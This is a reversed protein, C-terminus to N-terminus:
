SKKRQVLGNRFSFTDGYDVHFSSGFACLCKAYRSIRFFALGPIASNNKVHQLEIGQFLLLLIILFTFLTIAEPGPPKQHMLDCNAMSSHMKSLRTQLSSRHHSALVSRACSSQLDICFSNGLNLWYQLLNISKFSKTNKLTQSFKSSNKIQNQFTHM